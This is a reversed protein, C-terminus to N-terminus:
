ASAATPTPDAADESTLKKDVVAKEALEVLRM